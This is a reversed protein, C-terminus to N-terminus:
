EDAADSTYLLCSFQLRAFAFAVLASSVLVGATSLVAVTLSNKFFLQFSVNPNTLVEKFNDWTLHQPWAWPDSVAIEAPTKLSMVVMLYLPVMFAVSGMILMLWLAVRGAAAWQQARKTLKRYHEADEATFSRTRIAM